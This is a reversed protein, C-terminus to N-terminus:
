RFSPWSCIVAVAVSLTVIFPVVEFSHYSHYHCLSDDAIRKKLKSKVTAYNGNQMEDATGTLSNKSHCQFRIIAPLAPHCKWVQLIGREVM